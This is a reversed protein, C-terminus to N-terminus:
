KNEESNIWYDFKNFGAKFANKYLEKARFSQLVANMQESDIYRLCNEQFNYLVTEPSIEDTLIQALGNLLQKRFVREFETNIKEAGQPILDTSNLFAYLPFSRGKYSIDSTLSPLSANNLSSQENLSRYIVRYSAIPLIHGRERTDGLFPTERLSNEFSTVVVHAKLPIIEIEYSNNADERMAILSEDRADTFKEILAMLRALKEYAHDEIILYDIIHLADLKLDALEYYGPIYNPSNTDIREIRTIANELFENSVNPNFDISNKALEIYPETLKKLEVLSQVDRIENHTKLPNSLSLGDRDKIYMRHPRKVILSHLASPITQGITLNVCKTHYENSERLEYSPTSFEQSKIFQAELISQQSDPLSQSVSSSSQESENIADDSDSKAIKKRSSTRETDLPRRLSSSSTTSSVLLPPPNPESPLPPPPALAPSPRPVYAPPPSFYLPPPIPQFQSQQMQFQQMAIKNAQQMLNVQSTLYSLQPLLFQNIQENTLFPTNSISPSQQFQNIAAFNINMQIPPMATPLPPPPQLPPPVPTASGQLPLNNPFRYNFNNSDM